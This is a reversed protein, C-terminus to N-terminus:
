SRTMTSVNQVTANMPKVQMTNGLISPRVRRAFRRRLFSKVEPLAFIFLIAQVPNVFLVMYIVEYYWLPINYFDQAYVLTVFLSLVTNPVYILVYLSTFSLLQLTLKRQRRWNDARQRRVRGMSYVVRLVLTFNAIVIITVSTVTHLFWDINYVLLDKAYCPIPCAGSLPDFYPECPYIFIVGAYFLPPYVVCITLPVYHLLIRRKRIQLWHSYFVLIHRQVSATATLLLSMATLSFDFWTWWFCFPISRYIHEGLRFSSIHFPLDFATAVFSVITLLFVAHHQLAKKLMQNRHTLSYGLILLSSALSFISVPVFAAFLGPRRNYDFNMEPATTTENTNM